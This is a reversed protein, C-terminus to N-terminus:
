SWKCLLSAPRLALTQRSLQSRSSSASLMGHDAYRLVPTNLMKKGVSAQIDKLTSGAPLHAKGTVPKPVPIVDSCDTLHFPNQGLLSLKTMAAAFAVTM